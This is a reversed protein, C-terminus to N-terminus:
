KAPPVLVGNIIHVVGNSAEIDAKEVTADNVKV